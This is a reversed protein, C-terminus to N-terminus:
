SVKPRREGAKVGKREVYGVNESGCDRTTSFRVPHWWPKELLPDSPAWRVAVGELKLM